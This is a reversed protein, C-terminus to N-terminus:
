KQVLEIVGNWGPPPLHNHAIIHGTLVDKGRDRASVLHLIEFARDWEGVLFADLAREYNMVDEDGLSGDTERPPLLESVVLPTELGYPRVRALRRVRAVDTPVNGRVYEATPEDILIPVRLQKTMAELRSALNVVPGFVTVKAQEHPGIRGAVARGTAIGIGVRFGALAAGPKDALGEHQGRIGLAALCARRIMVPDSLPWGWFGLAADGLFDAVVGEQGLINKTMVGLAESVRELIGLLSKAEAEVAHSFGRLDTFMVTVDTERPRLVSEPEAATLV